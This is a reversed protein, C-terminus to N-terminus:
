ENSQRYSQQHEKQPSQVRELKLDTKYSLSPWLLHGYKTATSGVRYETVKTAAAASVHRVITSPFIAFSDSKLVGSAAVM